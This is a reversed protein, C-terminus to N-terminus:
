HWNLAMHARANKAKRRIPSSVEVDFYNGVGSFKFWGVLSNLVTFYNTKFYGEGVIFVIVVLARKGHGNITLWGGLRARYL